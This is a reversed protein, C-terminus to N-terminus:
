CFATTKEFNEVTINALLAPISNMKQVYVEIESALRSTYDTEHLTMTGAENIGFELFDKPSEAYISAITYKAGSVRMSWGFLNYVAARVEEIKRKAIEGTRIGVKSSKALDANTAILEQLAQELETVRTDQPGERVPSTDPEIATRLRKKGKAKDLEVQKAQTAQVLPNEKLHLVKVESPDYDIDGGENVVTDHESKRLSRLEEEADTLRKRVQQASENAVREACMADEAAKTAQKLRARLSDANSDLNPAKNAAIASALEARLQIVAAESERLSVEMEKVAAEYETSSKELVDCREQLRMAVRDPDTPKEFDKEIKELVEKFCTKELELIRRIREIRKNQANVEDREAATKVLAKRVEELESRLRQQEERLESENERGSGKVDAIMKQHQELDARQASEAANEGRVASIKQHQESDIGQVSEETNGRGVNWRAILRPNGAAERLIKLGEQVDKQQSLGRVLAVIEERERALAKTHQVKDFLEKRGRRLKAVEAESMVLREKEERGTEVEEELQGVRKKARDLEEVMKGEGMELDVILERLRKVEGELGNGEIKGEKSHLQVRLYELEDELGKARREAREKESELGKKEMDWRKSVGALEGEGATVREKLREVLAEFEDRQAVVTAYGFRDREVTERLALARGQANEELKRKERELREMRESAKLQVEAHHLEERRLDAESEHIRAEANAARKRAELLDAKYTKNSDSAEQLQTRLSIIQAQLAPPSASDSPSRLHQQVLPSRFAAIDSSLRRLAQRAEDVTEKSYPSM